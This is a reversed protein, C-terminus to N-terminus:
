SVRRWLRKSINTGAVDPGTPVVCSPDFIISGKSTGEWLVGSGIGSTTEVIAMKFLNGDANWCTLAGIFNKIRGEQKGGSIFTPRFGGEIGFFGGGPVIVQTIYKGAYPGTAIKSGIQLDATVTIVGNVRTALKQCSERTDITTPALLDWKIPDLEAPVTYASTSAKFKYLGYDDGARHYLVVPTANAAINTGVLTYYDVRSPPAASSIGYLVARGSWNVWTGELRKEVPSRESPIQELFDGVLKDTKVRWETGNWQLQITEGMKSTITKDGDLIQVEDDADNLIKLEVGRYAGQGLTLSNTSGSLILSADAQAESTVSNETVTIPRMRGFPLMTNLVNELTTNGPHDPDPQVTGFPPSSFSSM